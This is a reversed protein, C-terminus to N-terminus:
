KELLLANALLALSLPRFGKEEEKKPSMEGRQGESEERPAGHNQGQNRRPGNGSPGRYQGPRLGYFSNLMASGPLREGKKGKGESFRM